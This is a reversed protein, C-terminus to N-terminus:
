LQDIWIPQDHLTPNIFTMKNINSSKLACWLDSIFNRTSLFIRESPVSSASIILYKFACKKMNSELFFNSKFRDTYYSFEFIPQFSYMKSNVDKDEIKKKRNQLFSLLETGTSAMKSIHTPQENGNDNM